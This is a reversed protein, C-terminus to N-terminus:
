WTRLTPAQLVSNSIVTSCGTQAGGGRAEKTSLPNKEVRWGEVDRGECGGGVRSGDATERTSERWGDGHAVDAAPGVVPRSQVESVLIATHQRGHRPREM